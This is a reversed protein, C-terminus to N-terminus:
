PHWPQGPRGHHLSIHRQSRLQKRAQTVGRQDDTPLTVQAVLLAPQLLSDLHFHNPLDCLRLPLVRSLTHLVSPTATTDPPQHSFIWNHRPPFKPHLRFPASKTHSSYGQPQSWFSGLSVVKFFLSPPGATSLGARAIAQKLKLKPKPSQALFSALFFQFTFRVSPFHAPPEDDGQCSRRSADKQQAHHPFATNVAPAPVIGLHPASKLVKIAVPAFIRDKLIAVSPCRLM